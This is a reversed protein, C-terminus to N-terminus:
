CVIKRMHDFTSKFCSIQSDFIMVCVNDIPFIIFALPLWILLKLKTNIPYINRVIQFGLLPERASAPSSSSSPEISNSTINKTPPVNMTCKKAQHQDLHRLTRSSVSGRCNKFMLQVIVILAIFVLHYSRLLKTDIWPMPVRLKLYTTIIDYEQIM